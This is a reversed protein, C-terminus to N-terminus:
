LSSINIVFDIFLNNFYFVLSIWTECPLVHSNEKELAVLTNGM